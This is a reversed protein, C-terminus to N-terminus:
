SGLSSSSCRINSSCHFPVTEAEPLFNLRSNPTNRVKDWWQTRINMGSTPESIVMYIYSLETEEVTVDCARQHHCTNDEGCGSEYRNNTDLIFAYRLYWEVETAYLLLVSIIM